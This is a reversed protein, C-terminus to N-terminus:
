SESTHSMEPENLLKLLRCVARLAIDEPIPYEDGSEQAAIYEYRLLDIAANEYEAPYQVESM